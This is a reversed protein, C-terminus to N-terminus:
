PKVPAACLYVDGNAPVPTPQADNICVHNRKSIYCVIIDIDQTQAADWLSVRYCGRALRGPQSKSANAPLVLFSLLLLAIGAIVAGGALLIRKM